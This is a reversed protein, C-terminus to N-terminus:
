GIVTNKIRILEKLLLKSDCDKLELAVVKNKKGAVVEEIVNKWANKIRARSFNKRVYDPGNKRYLRLKEQNELLTCVANALDNSDNILDGTKGDAITEKLGGTNAGVVPVGYAQFDIASVCFTEITAVGYNPNVIGIQLRSMHTAMEMPSIHGTFHVGNEEIGQLTKGLHPKIYEEEFQPESIGIDGTKRTRDHTKISGMVILRASPVRAKILPWAKAVWHFGKSESVAGLYGINIEQSSVDNQVSDEPFDKGNYIYTVKDFYRKHRHWNAHNRSVCIIRKLSSSNSLLPELDSEPGNQDWLLFPMQLKDLVTIGKRTEEDGRNNFILLDLGLSKAVKGAESVDEVKRVAFHENEKGDVNTFFHVEFDSAMEHAMLLFQGDTGSMGVNGALFPKWKWDGLKKSDFYLGLRIM